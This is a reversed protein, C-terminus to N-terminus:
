YRLNPNRAALTEDIKLVPTSHPANLVIEPNEKSEQAIKEMIKVFNDLVEKSESETPEIMIAESVILPFYVTPPHIGYDMMRKAINITHVGSESQKEGSIVFEHMCTIDHPLDYSDKLCEKLYNASMVADQSVKKLSKGQMLIYAYARVLIGFNGYFAKVKGISDPLNYNKFYKEGDFDIIPAPLFDKLKAVVGVPGAGPGGGGHPTSFTKHLNVHVIDFGMAAPTTIGMIANLNAGDYYLLSGNEHVIKSIELINEEFIGLTNPNTMMIAAVDENLAEKLADISVQGKENSKIEVIDFGCMKATAPNTGHASDPVIVKKRAEGKKEFYKKVIMMGVFEGHAGAAPQLTIANMGTIEALNKQLKYMLELAGQVADDPANPHIGTFGELAAIQENVKPNYKMTCSGLPYFGKEICFNKNSLEMFHRMVELESVEPLVPELTRKLSEPLFYDYRADCNIDIGIQGKKSKEFILKSM